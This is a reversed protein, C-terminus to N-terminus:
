VVTSAVATKTSKEGCTAQKTKKKKRRERKEKLKMFAIRDDAEDESSFTSCSLNMSQNSRNATSDEWKNRIREMMQATSEEKHDPPPSLDEQRHKQKTSKSSKKSKRDKKQNMGLKRELSKLERMRHELDGEAASPTSPKKPQLEDSDSLSYSDDDDDDLFGM